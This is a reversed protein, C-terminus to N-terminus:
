NFLKGHQDVMVPETPIVEFEDEPDADTPFGRMYRIEEKLEEVQLFEQAQEAFDIEVLLRRLEDREPASLAWKFVAM